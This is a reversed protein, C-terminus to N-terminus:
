LIMGRGHYVADPPIMVLRALPIGNNRSISFAASGPHLVNDKVQVM